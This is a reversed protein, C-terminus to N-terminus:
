QGYSTGGFGSRSRVQSGVASFFLRTRVLAFTNRATAPSYCFGTSNTLFIFLGAFVVLIYSSIFLIINLFPLDLVISDERGSLGFTTLRAYSSM